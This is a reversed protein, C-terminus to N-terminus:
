LGLGHGGSDDYVMSNSFGSTARSDFISSSFCSEPPAPTSKVSSIRFSSRFAFFSWASIKPVQRAPLDHLERAM